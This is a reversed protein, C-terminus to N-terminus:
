SLFRCLEGCGRVTDVLAPKLVRKLGKLILPNPHGFPPKSIAQLGIKLLVSVLQLTEDKGCPFGEAAIFVAENAGIAVAVELPKGMEEAKAFPM